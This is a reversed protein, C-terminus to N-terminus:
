AIKYIDAINRLSEYNTIYKYIENWNFVRTMRSLLPYRNYNCDILLVEFGDLSIDVGNEYRDEIFIDCKLERAKEVKYHSGLMYLEGKPLNNIGLWQETAKRMKEERATVYYINHQDNLKLLYEKANQRLKANSHMREGFKDYFKLYEERPINLVKHIEYEVVDKETINKNFHNNAIDIWTYPDTITGDIDICINLKTM